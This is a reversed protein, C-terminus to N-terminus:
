GTVLAFALGDYGKSGVTQLAFASVRPEQAMVEVFRRIGRVNIDDSADDLVAGQRVVNDCVIVSGVRALALSRIFYDAASAKDADIFVFDFPEVGDTILADLSSLAAGRRLEVRESLGAQAFNRLAVDAHADDLELTLLYGDVPLARAMWVSSYGGLTGIELIRRAGMLRILTALLKGQNPAVSIAPLGAVDCAHLVATLVRDDPLFAADFYTDVANWLTADSM